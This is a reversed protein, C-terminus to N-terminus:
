LDGACDTAMFNKCTSKQTCHVDEEIHRTIAFTKQIWMGLQIASLPTMQEM